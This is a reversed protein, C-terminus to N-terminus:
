PILKPGRNRGDLFFRVGTQKKHKPRVTAKQNPRTFLKATSDLTKENPLLFANKLRYEGVRLSLFWCKSILEIEL